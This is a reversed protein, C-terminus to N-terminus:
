TYHYAWWILVVQLPLRVFRLWFPIGLSANDNLYMYINAPFVAILLAIIGWAAFESLMPFCLAIGLIVEITGCLLNITKPNPFYPPIIKHYLKPTRFHNLGAIIYFLAMLYLHWPLSM